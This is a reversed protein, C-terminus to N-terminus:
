ASRWEPNISDLYKFDAFSYPAKYYLDDNRIVGYYSDVALWKGQREGDEIVIWLHGQGDQQAPDYMYRTNYGFSRYTETLRQSGDYCMGYPTIPFIVSRSVEKIFGANETKNYTTNKKIASM